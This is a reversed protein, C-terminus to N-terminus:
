WFRHGTTSGTLHGQPFRLFCLFGRDKPWLMHTKSVDSGRHRGAQHAARGGPSRGGIVYAIDKNILVPPVANTDVETEAYWNLEGTM